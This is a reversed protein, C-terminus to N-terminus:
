KNLENRELGIVCGNSDYELTIQYNADEFKYVDINPESDAVAPSGWAENIDVRHQGVMRSQLEEDSYKSLEAIEVLYVFGEPSSPILHVCAVIVIVLLVVVSLVVLRRKSM